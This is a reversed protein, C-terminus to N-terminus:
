RGLFQNKLHGFVNRYLRFADAGSRQCHRRSQATEKEKPFKQVMLLWSIVWFNWGILHNRFDVMGADQM